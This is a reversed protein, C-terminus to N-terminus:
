PSSTGGGDRVMRGGDIEVTRDAVELVAAVDQEVLLFGTGDRDARRRFRDLVETLAAASLGRGVEDVVAMRPRGALMRAIALIQQEGGSLLGARRDRLPALMPLEDITADVVAASGRRPAALRLHEAVTLGPFLSRDETVCGLGARARRGVDSRRARGGTTAVVRGLLEVDGSTPAVLGAVTRMVTTSGSGNPGVLAVIEGAEVRLDIEHVSAGPGSGDTASVRRLDLLATM